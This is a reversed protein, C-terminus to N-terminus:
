ISLDQAYRKAIGALDSVRGCGGHAAASRDPGPQDPNGARLHNFLLNLAILILGGFTVM